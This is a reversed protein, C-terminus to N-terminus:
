KLNEETLDITRNQSKVTHLASKKQHSCVDKNINLSTLHLNFSSCAPYFHNCFM